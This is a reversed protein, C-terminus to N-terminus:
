GVLPVEICGLWPHVGDARMQGQEIGEEEREVSFLLFWLFSLLM